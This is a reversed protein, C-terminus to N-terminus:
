PKIPRNLQYTVDHIAGSKFKCYLRGDKIFMGKDLHLLRGEADQTVIGDYKEVSDITARPLSQRPLARNKATRSISRYTRMSNPGFIVTDWAPFYRIISDPAAHVTDCDYQWFQATDGNACQLPWRNVWHGRTQARGAMGALLLLVLLTRNKM